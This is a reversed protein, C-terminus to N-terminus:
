EPDNMSFPDGDDMLPTEEEIVPDSEVPKCRRLRAKQGETLPAKKELALIVDEANSEGAMLKPEAKAYQKEFADDPWFIPAAAPAQQDAPYYPEVIQAAKKGRTANVMITKRETIHSLHSTRIGGVAEGAWKVSPDNCLVAYRGVWESPEADSWCAALVRRSTKSPKWPQPHADVFISIPQDAAGTMEINTIRCVLPAGLLDDANIQNSKAQTTGMFDDRTITM